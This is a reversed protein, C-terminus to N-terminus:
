GKYQEDVVRTWIVIYIQDFISPPLWTSYYRSVGDTIPYLYDNWVSIVCINIVLVYSKTREAAHLLYVM